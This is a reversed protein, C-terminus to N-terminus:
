FHGLIRPDQDLLQLMLHRGRQYLLMNGPQLLTQGQFTITLLIEIHARIPNTVPSPIAPIILFFYEFFTTKGSTDRRITAFVIFMLASMPAIAADTLPLSMEMNQDFPLPLIQKQFLQYRDILQLQEQPSMPM